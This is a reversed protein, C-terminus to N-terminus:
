KKALLRDLFEVTERHVHEAIEPIENDLEHLVGPDKAGFDTVTFNPAYKSVVSKSMEYDVYTDARSSLFVHGAVIDAPKWAVENKLNPRTKWSSTILNMSFGFVNLPNDPRIRERHPYENLDVRRTLTKLTIVEKLLLLRNRQLASEGVFNKVVLGPAILVVGQTVKEAAMRYAALGGTSWGITIHKRSACDKGGVDDWVHKAIWQIEAEPTGPSYIRTNKMDGTSGGQGMYDFTVVRYGNENLKSFYPEHNMISDGLGQLYLVCSKLTGKEKFYGARIMVNKFRPHPHAFSKDVFNDPKISAISRLGDFREQTDSVLRVELKNRIILSGFVVITAYSIVHLVKWM